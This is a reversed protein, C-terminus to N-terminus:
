VKMREQSLFLTQYEECNDLLEDHKGISIIKGSKLVIIKDADQVTSLRHAVSIITKGYLTKRINKVILKENELDLSSTSEDLVIINPNYLLMRAISIRQKQGGSVKIGREGIVTDFGEPLSDIFDFIGAEKCAATLEEMSAKPKALLLNDRISMNFLFTNQMIIGIKNQLSASDIKYIDYGGLYINGSTPRLMGGILKILTSKGSGSKGVIAIHENEKVSLNLSNISFPAGQSYMFNLDRIIIESNKISVVPKEQNDLNLLNLVNNIKIADQQLGLNSDTITNIKAYLQEYYKMFTLLMAIEAQGSIILLGGVFYLNMKTIFLDKFAICGRNIYWLIQNKMFLSALPKWKEELRKTEQEEVCNSKIERWNQFCSHQYSEFQAYNNRYKEAVDKAKKSMVKTFVFSIPVMCLSIITLKWNLSFLIVTLIVVNLISFVYELIHTNLLKELSKSDDELINKTEGVHSNEANSYYLINKLLKHRIKLNFVMFLKNYTIQSLITLLTQVLYLLIYGLIVWIFYKIQQKLMVDNVLFSYILPGILGVASSLLKLFALLIYTKKRNRIYPYVKKLVSVRSIHKKKM